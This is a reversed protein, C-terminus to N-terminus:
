VPANKRWLPIARGSYKLDYGGKPVRSDHASTTIRRRSAMDLEDATIKQADSAKTSTMLKSEVIGYKESAIQHGKTMLDAERKKKSAKLLAISEFKLRAQEM